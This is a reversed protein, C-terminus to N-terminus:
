TSQIFYSLPSLFQDVVKAIFLKHPFMKKEENLCKKFFENIKLQLHIVQYCQTPKQWADVHM